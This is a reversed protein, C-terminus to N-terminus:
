DCLPTEQKDLKKPGWIGPVDGSTGAPHLLSRSCSSVTIRNIEPMWVACSPVWPRLGLSSTISPIILSGPTCRSEQEPMWDVSLNFLSFPEMKSEIM